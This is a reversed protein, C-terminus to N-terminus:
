KSAGFGIGAMVVLLACWRHLESLVGVGESDFVPVMGLLITVASGCGFAVFCWFCTKRIVGWRQGAAGAGAANKLDGGGHAEAWLLATAALCVIFAGGVAVHGLLFYGTMPRGIVTATFGSLALLGACLFTLFAITTRVSRAHDEFFGNGNGQRRVRFMLATMGVIGVISIIRFM